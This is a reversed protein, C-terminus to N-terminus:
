EREYIGIEHIINKMTSILTLDRDFVPRRQTKRICDFSCYCGEWGGGSVPFRVAYRYTPIKIECTECKGTFWMEQAEELVEEPLLVEEEDEDFERCVCYFM